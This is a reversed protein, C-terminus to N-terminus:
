ADYSKIQLGHKRLYHLLIDMLYRQIKSALEVNTDIKENNIGGFVFFVIASVVFILLTLYM